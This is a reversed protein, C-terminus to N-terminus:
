YKNIIVLAPIAIPKFIVIIFSDFYWDPSQLWNIYLFSRRRRKVIHKLVIYHFKITVM